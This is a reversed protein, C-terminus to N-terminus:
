NGFAYERSASNRCDLGWLASRPPPHREGPARYVARSGTGWGNSFLNGKLLVSAQELIPKLSGAVAPYVIPSCDLEM